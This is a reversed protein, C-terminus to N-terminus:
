APPDVAYDGLVDGLLSRLWSPSLSVDSDDFGFVWRLQAVTLHAVAGRAQLPDVDQATCGDDLAWLVSVLSPWQYAYQRYGGRERVLPCLDNFSSHGAGAISALRKPPRLWDYLVSAGSAPTISDNAAAILLTSKMPAPSDGQGARLATTRTAPDLTLLGVLQAPPEPSWGIAADLVPDGLLEIATAAGTGVGTVAAQEFNITGELPQDATVNASRLASLTDRLDDLGPDSKRANGISMLSRAPHEPAAVVFGWSALHILLSSDFRPDSNTDHSHLVLPFPGEDNAPADRHVPRAYTVAEDLEAPVLARFPEAFADELRYGSV